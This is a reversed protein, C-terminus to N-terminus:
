RYELRPSRMHWIIDPDSTVQKILIGMLPYTHRIRLYLAMEDPDSDVVQGNHMAIYHDEYVALLEALQARYHDEEEEIKREAEQRLYRRIAREALDAANIGLEDAVQQLGQATEEEIILTTASM